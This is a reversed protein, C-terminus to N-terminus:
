KKGPPARRRLEEFWNLVVHIQRIPAAEREAARLFVFGKGDPAVDYYTHNSGPEYHGEFLLRPKSAGFASQQDVAVAMVKEGDRYFIERGDRSWLPEAGGDTSIQWKGGPGQFPQVYVEARGAEDSTYAIWRADPSFSAQLENFPTRLFPQAKREPVNLVWLDENTEPHIESYLLWKGDSSWSRLHVHNEDALLREEAGTGDANKVYIGARPPANPSYAVQKGDPSWSPTEDGGTEFTLRTLAGRGLDYIWINAKFGSPARIAVALRGGDPSFRPDVFRREQPLAEAKGSRDVRALASDPTPSGGPPGPAYALTGEESLAFYAGGSPSVRVGEVVAV